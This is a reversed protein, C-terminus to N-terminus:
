KEPPPAKPEIPSQTLHGILGLVAGAIAATKLAEPRAGEQASQAVAGVAGSGAAILAAKFIKRWNM